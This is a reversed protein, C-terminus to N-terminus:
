YFIILNTFILHFVVQLATIVLTRLTSLQNNVKEVSAWLQGLDEPKSSISDVKSQLEHLSKRVSETLDTLWDKIIDVNTHTAECLGKIADISGVSDM